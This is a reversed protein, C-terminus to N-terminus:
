FILVPTSLTGPAFRVGDRWYKAHKRLQISRDAKIWLSKFEEPQDKFVSSQFYGVKGQELATTM